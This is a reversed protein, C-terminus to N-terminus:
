VLPVTRHIAGSSNQKSSLIMVAVTCLSTYENPLMMNCTLIVHAVDESFALLVISLNQSAIDGIVVERAVFLDNSCNRSARSRVSEVLSQDRIASPLEDFPAPRHIGIFWTRQTTLNDLKGLFLESFAHSGPHHLLSLM